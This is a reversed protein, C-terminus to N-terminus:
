ITSGINRQGLRAQRREWRSDRKDTTGSAAKQQGDWWSTRTPHLCESGVVGDSSLEQWQTAVLFTQVQLPVGSFWSVVVLSMAFSEVNSVMTTEVGNRWYMTGTGNVTKEPTRTVPLQGVGLALSCAQMPRPTEYVRPKFEKQYGTHWPIILM